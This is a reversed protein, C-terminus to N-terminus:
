SRSRTLARVADYRTVIGHLNGETGVLVAPNSRLLRTVDEADAAPTVVPYPAEMVSEVSRELLGPDELVARMLGSERVSGVCAGDRFVPLQSVGHTTMTSLAMQIPTTTDASLLAPADAARAGLLDAVSRSRRRELFGNERMWDDDFGKTLYHEGWDCLVAVIFGHPDDLEQAKRVAAQVILGASGGVFLGEERTLRRAM